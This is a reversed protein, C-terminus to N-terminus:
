SDNTSNGGLPNDQPWGDVQKGLNTETPVSDLGGCSMVNIDLTLQFYLSFAKELLTRLDCSHFDLTSLTDLLKPM